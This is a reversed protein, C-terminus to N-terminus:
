TLIVRFDNVNTKTPGTIIQTDLLAFFSHSDNNELMARSYVGLEAARDLIDPTIYAGAVAAGGDIGDTDAALAYFQGQLSLAHLFEANRGGTGNGTVIVTTEGGSILASRPLANQAKAAMEIALDRSLGQLDDGLNLPTYGAQTAIEAAAQLSKQPTAVVHMLSKSLSADDSFPTEHGDKGLFLRIQDPTKIQYKELIALAQEKTSDDGVTPGSAIVSPSDGPVDSIAFSCTAAPYAAKALQGGKGASLHKRVCNMADIPAGNKLLQQTIDQKLTFGVTEHPVCFLSSGGGSVLVVMLDAEDLSKAIDMIQQAAKRGREDPVPHAASCIKIFRCEEEHGDPVIIMGELRQRMQEPMVDEFAKAMVASAKGFGTVFIRGTKNAPLHDSIAKAMFNEPHASQVAAHYMQKMLNIKEQSSM